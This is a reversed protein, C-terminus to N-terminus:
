PWAITLKGVPGHVLVSGNGSTVGLINGVNVQNIVPVMNTFHQVRYGLEFSANTTLRYGLTATAETNIITVYRSLNQGVVTTVPGTFDVFQRGTFTHERKAFIAAVSGNLSAFARPQFLPVTLELGARPGIGLTDAEHTGQGTSVGGGFKDQEYSAGITNSSKLMRAGLFLRLPTQPPRYGIEGDFTHFRLTQNASANNLFTDGGSTTISTGTTTSTGLINSRWRARWDYLPNFPGGVEVGVSTGNRGPALSGSAALDGSFAFNDPSVNTLWGGELSVHFREYFSDESKPNRRESAQTPHAMGLTLCLLSCGGFLRVRSLGPRVNFLGM